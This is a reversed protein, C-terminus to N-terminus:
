GCSGYVTRSAEEPSKLDPLRRIVVIRLDIGPLCVLQIGSRISVAPRGPLGRIDRINLIFGSPM